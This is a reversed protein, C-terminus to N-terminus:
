DMPEFQSSMADRLAQALEKRDSKEVPADGFRLVAEIIDLQIMRRYHPFFPEDGWWCVSDSPPPAGDATRYTLTAYHVPVAAEVAFQLISPKFPLIRDGKGSTGEPFLVVGLGRDMASRAQAMVRILDRKRARDIFITDAAAFVTGLFPWGRLDAKAVFAADVATGLFPIDLYGVHNSVLFFRGSPPQGE